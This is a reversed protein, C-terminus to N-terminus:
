RRAPAPPARATDLRVPRVLHRRRVGLLRHRLVRGPAPPDEASAHILRFELGHEEQLARATALQNEAVDLGVPKAGLRMFWACFYGTGCGLDLVDLGSVDPLINLEGEPIEWAGWWPTASAWAKRGNAVWNPADRNWEERNREAHESLEM